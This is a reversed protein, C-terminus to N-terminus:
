AEPTARIIRLEADVDTIVAAEANPIQFVYTREVTRVPNDYGGRTFEAAMKFDTPLVKGMHKLTYGWPKRSNEPQLADRNGFAPYYAQHNGVSVVALLPMNFLTDEVWQDYAPLNLAEMTTRQHPLWFDGNVIQRLSSIANHPGLVPKEPAYTLTMEVTVETADAVTRSPSASVVEANLDLEAVFPAIVDLYYRELATLKGLELMGAGMQAKDLLSEQENQGLAAVRQLVRDKAEVLVQKYDALLTGNIGQKGAKAELREMSDVIRRDELSLAEMDQQFASSNALAQVRERLVSTDVEVIADLYLTTVQTAPNTRVRVAEDRTSVFASRLLRLSESFREDLLIQQSEVYAGSQSLAMERLKERAGELATIRSDAEGMQFSVSMAKSWSSDSNAASLGIATALVTVMWVVLLTKSTSQNSAKM